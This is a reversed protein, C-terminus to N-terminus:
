YETKLMNMLREQEAEKTMQDIRSNIYKSITSRNNWIWEEYRVLGQWCECSYVFIKGDFDKFEVSDYGYHLVVHEPDAAYSSECHEQWTQRNGNFDEVDGQDRDPCLHTKGCTCEISPAGGGWEVADVFLDFSRM